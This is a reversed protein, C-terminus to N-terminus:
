NNLNRKFINIIDQIYNELKQKNNRKKLAKDKWGLIEKMLLIRLEEKLTNLCYQEWQVEKSEPASVSAEDSIEEQCNVKSTPNVSTETQSRLTESKEKEILNYIDDPIPSYTFLENGDQKVIILTSDDNHMGKQRLEEVVEEFESHSNIGLLRDILKSEEKSGKHKLLYDSFPDSVMLLSDGPVLLGNINRPKGKGDKKSNSDFFDPYNDFSSVEESSYIAKIQNDNVLILCSDGLVDCDWNLGKFRIGLFTAGASHGDILSREARWVSKNGSEKQAKINEEVNNRWITSLAKVNEINPVWEENSTFTNVLIEAWIKQFISQSMGDSLAISKTDPNISFRDQCDSYHEAKKHTIFASILM